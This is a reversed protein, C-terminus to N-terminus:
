VAHETVAVKMKGVAEGGIEACVFRVEFVAVKALGFISGLLNNQQRRDLIRRNIINRCQRSIAEGIFIIYKSNQM